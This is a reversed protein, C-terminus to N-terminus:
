TKLWNLWLLKHSVVVCWLLLIEGYLSSSLIHREQNKTKSGRQAGSVELPPLWRFLKWRLCVWRLLMEVWYRPCDQAWEYRWQALLSSHWQLRVSNSILKESINWWWQDIFTFLLFFLFFSIHATESLMELSPHLVIFNLSKCFKCGLSKFIICYAVIIGFTFIAMIWFFM